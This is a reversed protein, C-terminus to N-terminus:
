KGTLYKLAAKNLAKTTGDDEGDDAKPAPKAPEKQKIQADVLEDIRDAPAFNNNAIYFRDGGEYPSRGEAKRIENPKLSATSMMKNFYNARTTMDGRFLQYLDMEFRRNGYRYNLLKIDAEMEWNKAWADLTDTAVELNSNEQNNFTAADTDFLKTPPLGLFRALELVGFKRSELFQMIDPSMSVANFKVGEELLAVGAVNKGGHNEKWSEKIRQYATDSLAGPVELVGSPLGGNKFLGAATQNSAIAIGLVESAYALLGQGTLGDKTHFNRLHFVDQPQLYVDAGPTSMSGGIIRYVLQNTRPLRTLEVHDPNIPHMAVPVGRMDREIEAYSNGRSIAIQTMMARFLFANMESNPALDLLDQTKGGLIENDKNKVQMPLKAIQTSIYILGRYYASVGMASDEHVAVGASLSWGRRVGSVQDAPSKRLAFLKKWSFKM